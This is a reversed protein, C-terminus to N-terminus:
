NDLAVDKRRVSMNKLRATATELLGAFAPKTEAAEDAAVIEATKKEDLETLVSIQGETVGVLVSKDAVRVLSVSKRPGLHATELVQLLGQGGRGSHRRGMMRRLLYIGGYICAIVVVLASLMKVIAGVAASNSGSIAAEADAARIQEDTSPTGITTRDAAVRNVNVAFLGILAVALIAATM